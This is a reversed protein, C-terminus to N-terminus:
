FEFDNRVEYGGTHDCLDWYETCGISELYMPNNTLTASEPDYFGLNDIFPFNEYKEKKIKVVLTEKIIKNNFVVHLVNEINELKYLWKHNIAYNIFMNLIFDSSFYVRDMFVKGAPRDLNWVLARGLIKEKTDDLLILLKVKEPNHTYIDLFIQCFRHKMCSDKLNGGGEVYNTGLYWKRIDEGEVLVFNNNLKKATIISKYENVFNEIDQGQVKDGLMRFVWRGIKIEVRQPNSWAEASVDSVKDQIMKNVKDSTIFTITDEKDTRDIFTDKFKEEEQALKLLKKSVIDDIRKLIKTFRKSLVLPFLDPNSINYNDINM